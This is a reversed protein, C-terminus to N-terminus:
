RNGFTSNLEERISESPMYCITYNSEDTHRALFYEECAESETLGDLMLSMIIEREELCLDKGKEILQMSMQQHPESTNPTNSLEWGKLRYEQLRPESIVTFEHNLLVIDESTRIKCTQRGFNDYNPVGWYIGFLIPKSSVPINRIVLVWSGNIVDTEVFHEKESDYHNFLKNQKQKITEYKAKAKLYKEM